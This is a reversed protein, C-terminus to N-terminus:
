INPRNNELLRARKAPDPEKYIDLFDQASKETLRDYEYLHYKNYLKFVVELASKRSDNVVKMDEKRLEWMAKLEEINQEGTM